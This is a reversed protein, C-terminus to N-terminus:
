DHRRGAKEKLEALKKLTKDPDKTAPEVCGQCCLFVIQGRLVLKQPVGMSGLPLGTVPCFQQARALPRDAAPLRDINKLQEATLEQPAAAPAPTPGAAAAARQPGGCAGFYAAAAAPNLRTEADILFAGAAAVRQGRRLGAVVAYYDGDRPGLEVAVGDFVGPASEVYVIQKAGTDIVAGQPVALVEDGAPTKGLPSAKAALTKFPEIERLPVNVEATAYMGPRLAGGSNSVSFRVRNTRTAADLQPYVLAVKGSFVRRPLAEVTARITQGQRLFDADKEYVEAEIWVDSLDAIELLTMGDEVRSGAVVNKSTVVGSQSSRIVLRPTAVGSAVMADLERDAVGFLKLRRRASEALDKAVDGKAASLMEQATSYLDPSYIEALPDGRRVPVFTKDVYLKEVYGATRSVVRSLRGEDYAVVGVASIRKSMPRYEIRATAIGALAIRDPSLQVRATVGPPLPAAEGRSRLSLPMGCIPCKPVSGDPELSHRIVAPHMPCYFEKDAPLQGAAVAAPRMYRDWYNKITEWKGILVFTALLIVLFRLRVEVMKFILKFRQWSRNM